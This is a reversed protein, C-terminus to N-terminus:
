KDVTTKQRISEIKANFLNDQLGKLTLLIVNLLGIQLDLISATKETHDLKKCVAGYAWVVYSM